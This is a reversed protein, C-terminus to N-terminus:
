HQKHMTGHGSGNNDKKGHAKGAKEKDFILKRCVIVGHGFKGCYSCRHKFACEKGLNCKGKNFRRCYDNSKGGKHFTNQYSNTANSHSGSTHSDSYSLRDRLRISWAQQLIIAWSLDPHHRAM